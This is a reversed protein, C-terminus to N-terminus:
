TVRRKVNLITQISSKRRIGYKIFRYITGCKRESGQKFGVFPKGAGGIRLM